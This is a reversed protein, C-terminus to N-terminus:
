KELRSTNNGEETTDILTTAIKQTQGRITAHEEVRNPKRQTSEQEVFLDSRSLSVCFISYQYHAFVSIVSIDQRSVNAYITTM